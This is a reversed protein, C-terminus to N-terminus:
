SHCDLIGYVSLIFVGLQNMLALTSSDILRVNDVSDFKFYKVQGLINVELKMEPTPFLVQQTRVERRPQIDMLEAKLQSGSSIKNSASPLVASKM